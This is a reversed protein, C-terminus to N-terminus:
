NFEQLSEGSLINRLYNIKGATTTTGKRDVARKFNNMIQLFEEPQGNEFTGIKIKYTESDADSQNQRMKIKIIAYKNVKNPEKKGLPIM